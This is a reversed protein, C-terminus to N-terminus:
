NFLQNLVDLSKPRKFGQMHLQYYLLLIELSEVRKTKSLKITNLADFKIGFCQKIGSHDPINICYMNTSEKQFIGDVLNFVPLNIANSDPYFGLYDSLQILFLLHFNAIADNGDLWVFSNELFSFLAENKEEEQIVSKLIESLFLALSTKQIQTHLSQYTHYVKAEQMFELTGKDKHNATLELLTLPQFLSTHLKGKKSKLINKLLYSKLGSTQTFCKVILDAESYKISSLVIAKTTIQM